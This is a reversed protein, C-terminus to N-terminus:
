RAPGPPRAVYSGGSDSAVQELADRWRRAIDEAGVAVVDIRARRFRNARLLEARLDTKTFWQGASPAGDSLVVLTDVEPDSLGWAIGDYLATRGAPRRARVFRLLAERRVSDLPLARPLAAEVREHFVALNVHAGGLAALARELEDVVGEWRTRGDRTLSGMSGSADLVFAVHRSRITLGLFRAEVTRTGAPPPLPRAGAGEPLQAPDFSRGDGELWTRWARADSEFPLGTLALLAAGAAEAVRVRPDALAGVLPALVARSRVRGACAAAALRVSWSADGLAAAVGEAAGAAGGAAGQAVLVELAALRVRADADALAPALPPPPEGAPVGAGVPGAAGASPWAAWAEARVAPDPDAAAARLLERAAPAPDDALWRLAEIRVSPAPDRAAAALGAEGAPDLWLVYAQCAERRALESRWRPAEAAIRQRARPDDLTGLVGAVARRVYPHADSLGQQLLALVEPAASGSLRRYASARASPSPDRLLRRLAPLDDPAAEACATSLGARGGAPGGLPLWGLMLLGLVLLGQM